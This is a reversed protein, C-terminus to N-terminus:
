YRVYSIYLLSSIEKGIFPVGWMAFLPDRIQDMLKNDWWMSKYKDLWAYYVNELPRLRKEVSLHGVIYKTDNM